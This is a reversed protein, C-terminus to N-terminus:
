AASWNGGSSAAMGAMLGPLRPRATQCLRWGAFSRRGERRLVSSLAAIREGQFADGSKHKSSALLAKRDAPVPQNNLTRVFFLFSQFIGASEAILCLRFVNRDKVLLRVGGTASPASQCQMM